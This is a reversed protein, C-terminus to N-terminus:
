PEEKPVILKDVFAKLGPIYAPSVDFGSNHDGQLDIFDASNKQAMEKGMKYPIIQDKEGHIILLPIDLNPLREKTPFDINSIMAIPLFPYYHAGMDPISTFTSELILADASFEGAAWSAIGGGLSRGHVILPKKLHDNEKLWLYAARVDEYCGKESPKGTSIGYGRYDFIMINWGLDNWTRITSMRHGLNGANGHCFLITGKNEKAPVFWAHIKENESKLTLDQFELGISAPTREPQGVTPIFVLKSQFFYVGVCMAIYAILIIRFVKILVQKSSTKKTPENEM